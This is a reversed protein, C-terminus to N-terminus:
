FEAYGGFAMFSAWAYPRRRSADPDRIMDQQARRLAEASPLGDHKRYRHFKIMLEAASDTEVPWLSAIVLPVGASIFSRAMGIAGEGRLAQEVGSQCASLVVLRTRPLRMEYVESAQLVGDSDRAPGPARAESALLLKSLLPSRQDSVYHSALHLVEANAMAARVRDERAAAGVLPTTNYYSAVREAEHGASPLDDLDPFQRRSFSPNGVSLLREARPGGRERATETRAVFVNASPSVIFTYREVLYKGSEPSVLASYPLQSLMKDPVICLQRGESLWQEVPSILIAYLERAADETERDDGAKAVQRLYATVKRELEAAPINQAHSEFGDRTIVWAILKDSLVSYYLLQSREPLRGRFESLPLPRAVRPHKADPSGGGDNVQSSTHVLNLLSRARSAEAYDFAQESNGSRTYAFDTALDYIDQGVDFFSNRNREERIKVRYQEFLRLVETLEEGATTDDGRESFALFRGKRAEYFYIDLDLQEFMRMANDYSALARNFDRRQRYLHGLRLSAHSLISLRSKEGEVHQGAEISRLGSLIAADYDRRAEHIVGLRSHSRSIIIPWKSEEALRLAETEFELAAAPLNLWYFDLAVEHYFTWILKPDFPLTQALGIADHSYKLSEVYNGFKLHMSVFLQLCRLKTVDDHIQESVELARGAYDLAQSLEDDSTRADGMAHLSQALLSKYGKKEFITSLRKFRGSSREVQPIRLECYGVWSEALLAECVNGAREFISSAEALLAIAAEFESNNYREIGQRKIRRARALTKREGDGARGYLAALDATYHDGARGAEIEGAFSLMRLRSAAEAAHGGEAHDIHEDLLREVVINGARSRGRIIAAWAAEADGAQYAKAFSEHLQGGQQSTKREQEELMKLNRRAEDAWPSASDKELYARWADKAQPLRLHQYVLARNFLAEPLSNDAKLARELHELSKGFYEAARGVDNPREAKGRELLLAGFDSDLRAGGGGMALAKELQDQAEDLKGEALYLRGLAHHSAADPRETIAELLLREALNRSAYDVEPQTGGRLQRAPAYGLESIRAEVIRQEKHAANLALMARAVVSRDASLWWVTLGAGVAVVVTAAIKLYMSSSFRRPRPVFPIAKKDERAARAATSEENLAAAFALKHQREPARLFRRELQEREGATLVGHAYEDILDNEVIEMEEFYDDDSLLRLEVQEEDVDSLQGLLYLRL